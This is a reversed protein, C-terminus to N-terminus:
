IGKGALPLRLFYKVSLNSCSQAVQPRHDAHPKPNSQTHGLVFAHFKKFCQTKQQKQQKTKENAIVLTEHIKHTAQSFGEKEM